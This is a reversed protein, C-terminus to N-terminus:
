LPNKRLGLTFMLYNVGMHFFTFFLVGFAFFDLGFLSFPWTFLLCGLVSDAQDIMIHTFGASKGPQIDRQRKVFSNPLEFLTYGLGYLIGFLYSPYHTFDLVAYRQAFDSQETIWELIYTFLISFLVMIVIGRITKNNGFIRKGRYTRNMDLPIKLFQLRDSKVIAMHVWAAFTVPFAFFLFSLIYDM